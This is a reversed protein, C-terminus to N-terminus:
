LRDLHQEELSAKAVKIEGYYVETEGEDALEIVNPQSPQEKQSGRVEHINGASTCTFIVEHQAFMFEELIPVVVSTTWSMESKPIKWNNYKRFTNLGAFFFPLIGVQECLDFSSLIDKVLSNTPVPRPDRGEKQALQKEEFVLTRFTMVWQNWRTAAAKAKSKDEDETTYVVDLTNNRIFAIAAKNLAHHQDYLHLIASLLAIKDVNHFDLTGDARSDNYWTTISPGYDVSDVSMCFRWLPRDRAWAPVVDGEQSTDLVVDQLAKAQGFYEMADDFTALTQTHNSSSSAM